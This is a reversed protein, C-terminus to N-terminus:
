HRCKKLTFTANEDESISWLPLQKINSVLINDNDLLKILTDKPLNTCSRNPVFEYKLIGSAVFQKGFFSEFLKSSDMFFYAVLILASFLFLLIHIYQKKLSKVKEKEPIILDVIMPVSSFILIIFLAGAILFSIM